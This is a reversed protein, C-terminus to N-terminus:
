IRFFHTDPLIYPIFEIYNLSNNRIPIYLFRSSM